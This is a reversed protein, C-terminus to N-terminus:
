LDAFGLGEIDGDSVEGDEPGLIDLDEWEDIVEEEEGEESDLYEEEFPNEYGFDQEESSEEDVEMVENDHDSESSESNVNTLGEDAANPIHMRALEAPSRDSLFHNTADRTSKHGVGGGRFRMFM